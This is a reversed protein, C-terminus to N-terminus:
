DWRREEVDAFTVEEDEHLELVEEVEEEIIVDMNETTRGKEKPYATYFKTKFFYPDEENSVKWFYGELKGLGLIDDPHLRKQRGERLTGKNTLLDEDTQVTQIETLFTGVKNSYDDITDVDKTMLFLFVGINSLISKRLTVDLNDLEAYSQTGLIIRANAERSQTFVPVDSEKLFIGIEDLVVDSEKFDNELAYALFTKLDTLAVEGMTRGFSNYKLDSLEILLIGNNHYAQLVNICQENNFITNGIGNNFYLFRGRVDEIITKYNNFADLIDSYKMDKLKKEKDAKELLNLSNEYHLYFELKQFNIPINLNLMLKIIFLLYAQTKNKHYTSEEWNGISFFIELILIPDTVKYFPNYGITNDNLSQQNIIYLPRKYKKALKKMHWRISYQKISAKGNVVVCFRENKLCDDLYWIINSTKGSGTIGGIYVHDRGSYDPTRKNDKKKEVQFLNHKKKRVVNLYSFCILSLLLSLLFGIIHFSNKLYEDSSIIFSLSDQITIEVLSFLVFKLQEMLIIAIPEIGIILAVIVLWVIALTIVLANKSKPLVGRKRVIYVFAFSLVFATPFCLLIVFCVIGTILKSLPLERQMSKEKELNDM